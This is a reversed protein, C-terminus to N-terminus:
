PRRWVAPSMGRRCLLRAPALGLGAAERDAQDRGKDGFRRALIEHMHGIGDILGLELAKRGSWFAGSFLEGEEGKLSAPVGRACWSRSSTM